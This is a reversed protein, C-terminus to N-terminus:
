VAGLHGGGCVPAACDHCKNAALVMGYVCDLIMITRSQPRRAAAAVLCVRWIMSFMYSYSIIEDDSSSAVGYSQAPSESDTINVTACTSKKQNQKQTFKRNDTYENDNQAKSELGKRECNDLQIGASFRLFISSCM